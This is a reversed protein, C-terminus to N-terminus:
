LRFIWPTEATLEKLVLDKKDSTSRIYRGMTKLASMHFDARDALYQSQRGLVFTLDAKDLDWTCGTDLKGNTSKGTM